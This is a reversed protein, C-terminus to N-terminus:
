PRGTLAPMAEQNLWDWVTQPMAGSMLRPTGYTILFAEEGFFRRFSTTFTEIGQESKLVYTGVFPLYWSTIERSKEILLQLHSQNFKDGYPNYSLTYIFSM